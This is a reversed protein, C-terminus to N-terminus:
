VIIQTSLSLMIKAMIRNLLKILHSLALNLLMDFSTAELDLFLGFSAVTQLPLLFTTYM